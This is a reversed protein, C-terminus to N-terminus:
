MCAVSMGLTNILGILISPLYSNAADDVLRHPGIAFARILFAAFALIASSGRRDPRLARVFTVSGLSTSEEAFSLEAPGRL